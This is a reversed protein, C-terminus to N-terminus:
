PPLLSFAVTRSSLLQVRPFVTDALSVCNKATKGQPDLSTTKLM